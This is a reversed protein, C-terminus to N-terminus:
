AAPPARARFPSAARMPAPRPTPGSRSATGAPATFEHSAPPLLDGGGSPAPEDAVIAVRAIAPVALPTEVGGRTLAPGIPHAAPAGLLLAVLLSLSALVGGADRASISGIRTM